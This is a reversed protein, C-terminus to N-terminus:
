IEKLSTDKKRYEIQTTGNEEGVLVDTRELAKRLEAVDFFISFILRITPQRSHLTKAL